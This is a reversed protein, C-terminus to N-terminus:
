EGNKKNLKKINKRRNQRAELSKYDIVLRLFSPFIFNTKLKNFDEETEVGELDLEKIKSHAFEMPSEVIRKMEEDSMNHRLALTHILDKIKKKEAKTM